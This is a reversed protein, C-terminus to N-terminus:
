IHDQDVLSIQDRGLLQAFDFGADAADVGVGLHMLGLAGLNREILHEATVREIEVTDEIDFWIKEAAVIVVMVVVIMIMVVMVAVIMVVIVVVLMRVRM